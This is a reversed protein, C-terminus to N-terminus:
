YIVYNSYDKHNFVTQYPICSMRDSPNKLYATINIYFYSIFLIIFFTLSYIKVRVRNRKNVIFQYYPIILIITQIFFLSLRNAITSDLSLFINSVCAGVNFLGLLFPLNKGQSSLRKWFILNLINLGNIIYTMTRGGETQKVDIYHEAYAFLTLEDAYQAITNSVIVSVLFSSIYLILHSISTNKLYFFPYILFAIAASKHFFFAVVTLAISWFLKHNILLVIAYLVLSFAIANRIVTLGNFYLSPHLFYILLSFAPAVSLSLCVKYIPYLILFSTIIFFVQYHTIYGVEILLRSLPELRDLALDSTQHQASKMYSYYDYGIGYRIAAFLFLIVFCYLCKKKEDIRMATIFFLLLTIVAFPILDVFDFVYIM